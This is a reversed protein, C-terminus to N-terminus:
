FKDVAAKVAARVKPDADQELAQIADLTAPDGIEGLAYVCGARVEATESKLGQLLEKKAPAMQGTYSRGRSPDEFINVDHPRVIRPPWPRRSLM